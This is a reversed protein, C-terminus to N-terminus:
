FVLHCRLWKCLDEGERRVWCLELIIVADGKGPKVVLVNGHLLTIAGLELEVRLQLSPDRQCVLILFGEYALLLAGVAACISGRITITM